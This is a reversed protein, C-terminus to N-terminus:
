KGPGPHVSILEIEFLLPSYGPIINWIGAAGYALNSPLLFRAKGGEKMYQFGEDLGPIIEYNGLVAGYPASATINSDFVVRDVFMGTYRFFVTDKAVPMRGTGARLEIYYLGSTKKSYVTDGLTKIYAAIQSREQKEWTASSNCGIIFSAILFIGAFFRINKM